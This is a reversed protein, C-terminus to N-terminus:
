SSAAPATVAGRPAASWISDRPGDYARRRSISAMAMFMAAGGLAIIDVFITPYGHNWGSGSLGSWLSSLPILLTTVAAVRLLEYGSRAAGRMFAWGIAAVFVGYYIYSHLGSLNAGSPLYKAAAITLSIGSVCGLSVGTTLSGLIQASRSQSSASAKRERKRRSEVWLLNGSYFLFAGALGLAFYGWRVPAGGFNGFHLAFFSTLTAFWGSQQGPMYDRGIIQGSYPDVGAIGFTAGRMGRVPDVGQVRLGMEGDRGTSYSLTKPTFGPAQPALIELLRDPPLVGGRDAPSPPAAPREVASRAGGVFVHEQADYFQDHFAFVVATLAMVIHFPLSFLGLANHVDLWMRKANRGMRILYMDKVLSPILVITGSVLAIAYLLTIAGMIPMAIEHDLPLGVQQHLVDIFEAVPSPGTSSIELRGDAALAAFYTIRPAPDGRQGTTWSIRGPNEPGPDLHVDYGRAVEPREAILKEILEATRDLPLPASLVPPPSAWRQLPVEFMTIAGAYFAIFLALGSFIGVWSHIDKYMRVIDTRM